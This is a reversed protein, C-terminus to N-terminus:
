TTTAGALELTPFLGAAAGGRLVDRANGQLRVERDIYTL